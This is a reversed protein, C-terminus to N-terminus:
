GLVMPVTGTSETAHADRRLGRRRRFDVDDDDEEFRRRRSPRDDEEERRRSPAPAAKAMAMPEPPPPASSVALGNDAAAPVAIVAECKPCKVKKGAATDPARLMTSCGSCQVDIPM